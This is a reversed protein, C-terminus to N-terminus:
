KGPHEKAMHKYIHTKCFKKHCYACTCTGKKGCDMACTEIETKKTNTNGSPDKGAFKKFEKEAEKVENEIEEDDFENNKLKEILKELYNIVRKRSEKEGEEAEEEENENNQENEDGLNFDRTFKIYETEVGGEEADEFATIIKTYVEENRKQKERLSIAYGYASMIDKEATERNWNDGSAGPIIFPDADYKLLICCMRFDHLYAAIRLPTSGSAAIKNVDAPARSEERDNEEKEGKEEEEEGNESFFEIKPLDHILKDVVYYNRQTVATHIASTGWEPHDKNGVGNLDIKDNIHEQYYETKLLLDFCKHDKPFVSLHFANYGEATISLDPNKEKLIYEVFEDRECLVALMLPTPGRPCMNVTAEKTYKPKPNLQQYQQLHMNVEIRGLYLKKFAELDGDLISDIVSQQYTKKSM